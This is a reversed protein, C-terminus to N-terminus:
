GCMVGGVLSDMLKIKFEIHKTNEIRVAEVINGVHQGNADFFPKGISQDVVKVVAEESYDDFRIKSKILM